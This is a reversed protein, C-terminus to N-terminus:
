ILMGAASGVRGDVRGYLPGRLVWKSKRLSAVRVWCAGPERTRRPRPRMVALGAADHIAALIAGKLQPVLIAALSESNM